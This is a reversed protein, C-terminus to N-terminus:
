KQEKMVSRISEQIALRIDETLNHTERLRLAEELKLNECKLQLNEDKLALNEKLLKIQEQLLFNEKSLVDTSKSEPNSKCDNISKKSIPEKSELGPSDPKPGSEANEISLFNELESIMGNKKQQFNERYTTTSEKNKMKLEKETALNEVSERTPKLVQTLRQGLKSYTLLYKNSYRLGETEFDREPVLSAFPNLDCFEYKLFTGLITCLREHDKQVREETGATMVFPVNLKKVAFLNEKCSCDSLGFECEHIDLNYGVVIDPKQFFSTDVFHHYNIPWSKMSLNRKRMDTCDPYNFSLTDTELGVFIIKLKKLNQVWHLLVDWYEETAIEANKSGIVHVVLTSDDSESILLGLKKMAYVLTLPRTLLESELIKQFNPIDVVSAKNKWLLNRDIFEEISGPFNDERKPLLISNRPQNSLQSIQALRFSLSFNECLTQHNLCDEHERCFHIGCKCSKLKKLDTEHCTFCTKPFLFMEQEYDVLKRRIETEVKSVLSLKARLWSAPDLKQDNMLKIESDFLNKSGSHTLLSQIVKCLDKHQSWDDKQHSKSCYFIMSCLNCIISPNSSCVRCANPHFFDRSSSTETTKKSLLPADNFFIGAKCRSVRANTVVIFQNIICVGGDTWEIQPQLSGFDNYGDYCILSPWFSSRLSESVYIADKETATTVVVPCNNQSWSELCNKLVIDNNTSPEYNLLAILDPKQYNKSRIYDKYDLENTEVTLNRKNARCKICLEVEVIVNKHYNYEILVVKLHNLNPLFHLLFEWESFYRFMGSNVHLLMESATKLNLKKLANFISLVMSLTNSIYIKIEEHDANEVKEDLYERMSVPTDCLNEFQTNELIAKEIAVVSTKTEVSGLKRELDRSFKLSHCNKDHEPSSPHEKCFDASLCSPCTTLLQHRTDHCVFCSRPKLLMKLEHRFLSRCLKLQVTLCMEHRQQIWTKSDAGRLSEYVHSVRRERMISSIVKCIGKHEKWHQKQHNTGCYSIMQCRSCRKLSNTNKCIYCENAHFEM